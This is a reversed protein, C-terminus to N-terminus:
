FVSIKMYKKPNEAMKKVLDNIDVVLANVSDYIAGDKMVKGLTGDPDQIKVLLSNLSSVLEFIDSEKLSVTVDEINGMSSDVKEMVGNLQVFMKNLSALLSEVEPTNKRLSASLANVNATVGKIDKLIGSVNAKSEESFMSNVNDVLSKMSVLSMALQDVLPGINESLTALLDSEFGSALVTGNKSMVGSRGFVIKVGKSGMIDTSYIVLRSDSPIKFRKDVSCLVKFRDSEVDYSIDEVSGARYGRINVPASPLLGQVNEFEASLELEKNFIDKSRLFNIVFFSVVLVLVVFVGIKFEKSIKM